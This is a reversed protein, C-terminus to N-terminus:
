PLPHAKYLLRRLVVFLLGALLLILLHMLGGTPCSGVRCNCGDKGDYGANVSPGDGWGDIVGGSDGGGDGGGADMAAERCAGDDCVQGAPCLSEIWEPCGEPAVECTLLISSPGDEDCATEGPTQCGGTCPSFCAAEGNEEHGCLQFVQSCDIEIVQGAVCKVVVSADCIGGEPLTDCTTPPDECAGDECIQGEPCPEYLLDMCGDQGEVCGEITPGDLGTICVSQVEGCEPMCHGCDSPNGFDCLLEASSLDAWPGATGGGIIRSPWNELAAALDTPVTRIEVDGLEQLFIGIVAEETTPMGMYTPLVVAGDLAIFPLYTRVVGDQTEPWPVDIVTTLGGGGAAELVARIEDLGEQLSLSWSSADGLLVGWSDGDGSSAKAGTLRVYLDMPKKKLEGLPAPIAILTNCGAYMRLAYDIEVATHGFNMNYIEPGVLCLGDATGQLHTRTLFLPIRHLPAGAAEAIRGTAVDDGPRLSYYGGDLLFAHDDGTQLAVPGWEGAFSTELIEVDVWGHQAPELAEDAMWSYLDLQNQSGRALVTVQAEPRLSGLLAAHYTDGVDPAMWVRGFTAPWRIPDEVELPATYGFWEPHDEPLDGLAVGPWILMLVVIHLLGRM